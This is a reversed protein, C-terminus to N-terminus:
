GPIDDIDSIQFSNETIKENTNYIHYLPKQGYFSAWQTFTSPPGIILDCRALAYLDEIPDGGSVKVSLDYFQSTTVEENSCVLYVVQLNNYLEEVEKMIQAYYSVPFNYRGGKWNAYDGKRIHVGILLDFRFEISSFQLDINKEIRKVPKFFKRIESAHKRTLKPERFRWGSVFLLKKKKWFDEPILESLSKIGAHDKDSIIPFLRQFVTFKLAIKTLLYLSQFQFRFINSILLIPSIIKHYFKQVVHPYRSSSTNKTSQFFHAYSQFTFNTVHLNQDKAWAIINAYFIIRNALRGCRKVIFVRGSRKPM